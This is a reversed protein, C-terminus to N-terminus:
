QNRKKLQHYFDIITEDKLVVLMLLYMICGVIPCIAVRLYINDILRYILYVVAGMSVSSFIPAFINKSKLLVRDEKNLRIYVVVAIVCESIVSSIVAGYINFLLILPINILINVIVGIIYAFTVEKEKNSCIAVQYCCLDEASKLPILIVFIQVALVSNSYNDGYLIQIADTAMILLGVLLPFSCIVVIRLGKNVLKIFSQHDEEYLASLRPLFVATVSTCLTIMINVINHAYTYYAVHSDDVMFGIMTIDLKNYLNNCFAGVGLIAITKFHKTIKINKFSFKVYKRAHIINFIYNGGTALSVILAYILYDNEERVFVFLSVIMLIKIISSRITIYKYEEIGQYFWDINLFNFAIVLGTALYLNLDINSRNIILYGFFLLLSAFTSVFNCAFLNSYEENLTDKSISAKSIIKTGYNSIGLIALTVFYSSITQSFSISGISSPSLVRSVYISTILPFLINICRYIVNFISNVKLSKM